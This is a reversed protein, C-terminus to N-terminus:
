KHTALVGVTHSVGFLKNIKKEQDIMTSKYERMDNIYNKLQMKTTQLRVQLKEIMELDCPRSQKQNFLEIFHDRKNTLVLIREDYYGIRGAQENRHDEIKSILKEKMDNYKNELKSLKSNLESQQEPKMNKLQSSIESISKEYNRVKEEHERSIQSVLTNHGKVVEDYELEKQTTLNEYKKKDEGYEKSFIEIISQLSRTLDGIQTEYANRSENINIELKEKEEQYGDLKEEILKSDRVRNSELTNKLEEIETHDEAENRDKQILKTQDDLWKILENLISQLEATKEEREKKMDVVQQKLSSIQAMRAKGSSSPEVAKNHRQNESEIQNEYSSILQDKENKHDIQHKEFENKLSSITDNLERFLEQNDIQPPEILELEDRLVSFDNKFNKELVDFEEHSFGVNKIGSIVEQHEKNLRDILENKAKLNRLKVEEISCSSQTQTEKEENTLKYHLDLAEEENHRNLSDIEERQNNDFTKEEEQALLLHSDKLNKLLNLEKIQKENKTAADSELQDIQQQIQLLEQKMKEIETSKMRELSDALKQQEQDNNKRLEDISQHERILEADFKNQTAIILKNTQDLKSNLDAESQKNSAELAKIEAENKKILGNLSLQGTTSSRELSEKLAALEAKNSQIIEVLTEKIQNIESQKETVLTNFKAKYSDIDQNFNSEQSQIEIIFEDKEKKNSEIIRNISERINLSTYFNNEKTKEQYSKTEGLKNRIQKVEEKLKHIMEVIRDQNQKLESGEGSQMIEDTIKKMNLKHEELMKKFKEENERNYKNIKKTSEADHTKIEALLKEKAKQMSDTLRKKAGEVQRNLSQESEDIDITAIIRKLGVLEQRTNSICADVNKQSQNSFEIFDKNIYSIKSNYLKEYKSIAQVDLGENSQNIETMKETFNDLAAKIQPDYIKNIVKRKYELDNAQGMFLAIVKNLQAMKKNVNFKTANPNKLANTM